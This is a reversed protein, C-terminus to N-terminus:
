AAFSRPKTSTSLSIIPRADLRSRPMTRVDALLTVEAERLLDIFEGIERRGHGITYFAHAM